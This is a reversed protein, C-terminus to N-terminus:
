GKCAAVDALSLVAPNIGRNACLAAAKGAVEGLPVANGTVRYSSHALFDGSICRGAMLLNDRDRAVLSRYPIQYPPVYEAYLEHPVAKLVRNPVGYPVYPEQKSPILHHVDINFTAECIGDEFRRGARCDEATLTYLGHIRRGERISATPGTSVLFLGAFLPNGSSRLTEVANRVQQRGTLEARTLSDADTPDLNYLHSAMLFALGPQGPQAFLTIGTYTFPYGADQLAAKVELADPLPSPWGGVLGFMTGPQCTGDEPCGMDFGCGARAALDGDGTADVFVQASFTELGSKSATQISKLRRGECEAGLVLTHLRLDVGAQALMDDLLLKMPEVTFLGAWGGWREFAGLRTLEHKIESMMGTKYDYDIILSMSGSTWAGGFCPNKEILLTHAGSRAASIAAAMGAPGGGAVIVDYTIRKAM